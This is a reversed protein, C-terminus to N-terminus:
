KKYIIKRVTDFALGFEQAIQEISCGNRHKMKMWKNRTDFFKKSGSNEGWQKHYCSNPIYLLEGNIHKQIEILLQQPLVEAANVYKM